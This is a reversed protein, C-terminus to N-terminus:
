RLKSPPAQVKITQTFAEPAGVPRSVKVTLKLKVKGGAKLLKRGAATVKMKLGKKKGEPVKVSGKAFVITQAKTKPKAWPRFATRPAVAKAIGDGNCYKPDPHGGQANCDIFAPTMYRWAYVKKLAILRVKTPTKTGGGNGGAGGSASGGAAGSGSGGTGGGGPNQPEGSPACGECPKWDPEQNQEASKTIPVAPSSGDAPGVLIQRYGAGFTPYADFAVQTGDPSFRANYPVVWGDPMEIVHGESSGDAPAVRILDLPEEDASYVIQKGDPSWDVSSNLDAPVPLEKFGSGDANTVRIKEPDSFTVTAVKSGDPSFEPRYGYSNTLITHKVSNDPPGKWLFGERSFLLTAGDPSWAPTLESKNSTSEVTLPDASGDAPSIYLESELNPPANSGIRETYAVRTGDPSWAPPGLEASRDPSDSLNTAEVEAATKSPDLTWIDWSGLAPYFGVYAMQTGDPSWSPSREQGVADDTETLYRHEAPNDPNILCLDAECSYAIEDASAAPAVLAAMALAILGILLGSSKRSQNPM